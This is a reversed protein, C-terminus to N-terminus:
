FTSGQLLYASRGNMLVAALIIPPSVALLQGFGLSKAGLEGPVEQAQGGCCLRRPAKKSEGGRAAVKFIVARLHPPINGM